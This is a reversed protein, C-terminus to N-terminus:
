FRVLLSLYHDDSFIESNNLKYTYDLQLNRFRLGTGCAFVGNNFGLRLGTQTDKLVDQWTTKEKIEVVSLKSNAETDKGISAWYETGFNLYADTDQKKVVDASITIGSFPFTALGFSVQYPINDDDISGVIDRAMLGAVVYQNIDYKLGLDLGIGSKMDNDISSVYLKPTIGFSLMKYRNAYSFGINYESNDFYGTPNDAEDYGEIDGVTAGVWTLAIAGFGYNQGIAAYQYSRDLSMKINYLCALELDKLSILGAPNWYASTVDTTTATGANGMAITRAGVGLNTYAATHNNDAILIVPVMLVVLIFAISIGIWKQFVFSSKNINKHNSTIKINITKM